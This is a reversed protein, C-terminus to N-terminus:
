CASRRRRIPGSNMGAAATCLQVAPSQHGAFRIQFDVVRRRYSRVIGSQIIERRTLPEQEVRVQLPTHGDEVQAYSTPACGRVKGFECGTIDPHVVRRFHHIDAACSKWLQFEHLCARSLHGHNRAGTKLGNNEREIAQVRQRWAFLEPIAQSLAVTHKSDASDEDEGRMVRARNQNPRRPIALAYTRKRFRQYSSGPRKKTGGELHEGANANYDRRCSRKRGSAATCNLSSQGPPEPGPFAVEVIGAMGVQEVV